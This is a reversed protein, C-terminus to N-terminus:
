NFANYFLFYYHLVCKNFAYFHLEKEVEDM